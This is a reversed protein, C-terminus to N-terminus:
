SNCVPYISRGPYQAKKGLAMEIEMLRNYKANRESRCPAGTKIQGAGLAVALDAILPDATEGSRHSLIVGYGAHQAMRVAAITETITGVQNPKILIANGCHQQIGKELRSTHTVFLDDGVLQLKNGLCHTLKQWGQWDEEDLADELSLLPYAQAIDAWHTILQQATYTTDAKPLHYEGNKDTKWESAAVDVGLMVDVGPRYGALSIAQVLYQLAVEDSELDPAFGGEDGVGTSMGERKLLDALAHHIESGWRVADAFTPAGVPLIMCEQMDLNNAAHAGGNLINMMPVPLTYHTSNGLTQWLELGQAAAAARAIAASAALTANAGIHSKDPTGDAQCIAQDVAAQDAADVNLLAPQLISHLHGAAKLVGKGGYRDPDNDRLEVSEFAGTSAGSPVAATASIGNTLTVRAEVTPNGRSDLIERGTLTAIQLKAM